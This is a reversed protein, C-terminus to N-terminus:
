KIDERKVSVSRAVQLDLTIYHMPEPLKVTVNQEWITGHEQSWLVTIFHNGTAILMGLGPPSYSMHKVWDGPKLHRALTHGDLAVFQKDRPYEYTKLISV